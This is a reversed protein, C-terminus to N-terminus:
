PQGPRRFVQVQVVVERADVSGGADDHAPYRSIVAVLEDRLAATQEATLRLAFDSLDSGDQWDQDLLPLEEVHAEVQDAYSKGIARLYVQVDARAEDDGVVTSPTLYTSRHAAAWWRERPQGRGTDERVFGYMALQRLHYSTAGSSEGLRQALRSATSPGHSRLLGLLRVRLPHALGRLSRADLVVDRSPDPVALDRRAPASM